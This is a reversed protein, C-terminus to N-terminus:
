RGKAAASKSRASKASSRAASAGRAELYREWLLVTAASRHPRLRAGFADAERASPRDELDLVDRLAEQLALDHAPWVDPRELALLLYIDATWRGVGRLAMLEGRVDEDAARALGELNLAGRRVAEALGLICAVKGGSLGCGRLGDGLAAVSGADVRPVAAQVRAWVADASRQSVAQEVVIRVLTSFGPPRARIRKPHRHRAVAALEPAQELLAALAREPIRV